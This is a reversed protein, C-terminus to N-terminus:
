AELSSDKTDGENLASFPVVFFNPFKCFIKALSWDLLSSDNLQTYYYYKKEMAGWKRKFRYVGTQHAGTAGWNWWAFGRRSAEAMATILILSLPQVSRYENDIAPTFYEVTQNFYFILLGAIVLGDKKAVYLDFDQGSVFHRPVLAFFKDSKPLGGSRCLNEQHMQRLREMQTHDIEVTVGERLAKKVNRRASSDIRLLIENWHTDRISINTFQGIRYDIYNYRIESSNRIPQFKWKAEVQKAFPNGMTSVSLTMESRTITNYAAVLECYAKAEDAIIGGNSGYYPLSNYVRGENEQTYMLPLIGRINAGERALLYEEECGLLLKLFDKYKSSYYFLSYYHGLLFQDYEEACESQLLEINM